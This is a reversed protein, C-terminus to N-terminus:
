GASYTPVLTKPSIFDRRWMPLLSRTSTATAGIHGGNGIHGRTKLGRFVNAVYADHRLSEIPHSADEALHFRAAV